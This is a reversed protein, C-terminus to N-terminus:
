RPTALQARTDLYHCVESAGAVKPPKTSGVGWKTWLHLTSYRTGIDFRHAYISHRVCPLCAEYAAKFVWDRLKRKENTPCHFMGRPASSPLFTLRVQSWRCGLTVSAAAPGGSNASVDRSELEQGSRKRGATRELANRFARRVVSIQPRSRELFGLRPRAEYLQCCTSAQPLQM